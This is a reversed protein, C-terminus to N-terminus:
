KKEKEEHTVLVVLIKSTGYEYCTHLALMPVCDAVQLLQQDIQILKLIITITALSLYVSISFIILTIEQVVSVQRIISTRVLINLTFNSMINILFLYHDLYIHKVTM